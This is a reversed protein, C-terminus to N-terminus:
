SLKILSAIDVIWSYAIILALKLYRLRGIIIDNVWRHM